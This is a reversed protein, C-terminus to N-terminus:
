DRKKRELTSLFEGGTLVVPAHVFVGTSRGRRRIQRKSWWIGGENESVEEEM